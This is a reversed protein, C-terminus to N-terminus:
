VMPASNTLVDSRRCSADVNVQPQRRPQQHTASGGASTRSGRAGCMRTSSGTSKQSSFGSTRWSAAPAIPSVKFASSDSSPDSLRLNMLSGGAAPEATAKGNPASAAPRWLRLAAMPPRRPLPRTDDDTDGDGAITLAFCGKGEEAGVKAETARAPKRRRKGGGAFPTCREPKRPTQGPEDRPTQGPESDSAVVNRDNFTRLGLNGPRAAEGPKQQAHAAAQQTTLREAFKRRRALHAQRSKLVIFAAAGLLSCVLLMMLLVEVTLSTTGHVKLGTYLCGFGLVLINVAFLWSEISNQFDFSYPQFRVQLAWFAVFVMTAVAAQAWIAQMSGASLPRCYDATANAPTANAADFETDSAVVDSSNAAEPPHCDVRGTKVDDKEDIIFNAVWVDLTLLFQRLWVMFQWYPVSPRFRDILFALRVKLREHSLNAVKGWSRGTILARINLAYKALMQLQVFFLLTAIATGVNAIAFRSNAQAWLDFTIRWSLTLGLTFVVTEFMELFDVRRVTARVASAPSCHKVTWQMVTPGLVLAMLVAMRMITITYFANEGLQLACEPRVAGLSLFDVTAFSTLTEVSPPWALKLTGLISLTQLHCFFIAATNVWLDLKEGLRQFHDVLRYYCAALGVVVLLVGGALLWTVVPDPCAICVESDDSRVEYSADFASCGIPPVGSCAMGGTRCSRVLGRVLPDGEDYEFNNGSLGAYRM